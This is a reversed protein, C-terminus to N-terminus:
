QHSCGDSGRQMLIRKAPVWRAGEDRVRVQIEYAGGKMAADIRIASWGNIPVFYYGHRDVAPLPPKKPRKERFVKRRM